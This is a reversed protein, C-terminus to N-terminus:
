TYFDLSGYQKRGFFETGNGYRNFYYWCSDDKGVMGSDPIWKVRGISVIKRCWKMYSESQKTHMWAADFLLWCGKDSKTFHEIMPHLIKRDWPPNTIVLGNHEISFANAETITDVQPEIDTASICKGGFSELHEVLIGNGACPEIFEFEEPLHPKLPMVAEIPTPYFDRPKREFTKHQWRGM